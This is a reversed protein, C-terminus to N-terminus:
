RNRAFVPDGVKIIGEVEIALDIGLCPKPGYPERCRYLITDCLTTNRVEEYPSTGNLLINARFNRHTVPKQLRKNVDEITANGMMMCNCFDHFAIMDSEEANIEWNKPVYKTQRKVLEPGSFHLRLGEVSLFKSLWRSVEDGCDYSQVRVNKIGAESLQPQATLIPIDIKQMGPASLVLQDGHLSATILAMQPYQRLTIYTGDNTTVMWHRDTVTQYKLGYKSCFATQVSMGRVSKVPHVILESVSGVLTFQNRSRWHIWSLEVYKAVAGGCLALLIKSQKGFDFM